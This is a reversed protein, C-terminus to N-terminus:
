CPEEQAHQTKESYTETVPQSVIIRCPVLSHTIKGASMKEPTRSVELLEQMAAIEFNIRTEEHTRHSLNM